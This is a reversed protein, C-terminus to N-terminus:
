LFKNEAKKLLNKIRMNGKKEAIEAATKGDVQRITPDGGKQLIKDAVSYMNREAAYMLATNGFQDTRDPDFDKQVLLNILAANNNEIALM